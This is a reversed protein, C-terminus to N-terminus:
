INDLIWQIDGTPKHNCKEMLVQSIFEKDDIRSKLFPLGLTNLLECVRERRKEPSFRPNSVSTIETKNGERAMLEEDVHETIEDGALSNKYSVIDNDKNFELELVLTPEIIHILKGIHTGTNSILQKFLEAIIIGAIGQM